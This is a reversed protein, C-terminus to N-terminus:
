SAVMRRPAVRKRKLWAEVDSRRYRPRGGLEYVALELHEHRWRRLTGEPIGIWSSVEATTLFEATV